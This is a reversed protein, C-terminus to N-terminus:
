FFPSFTLFHACLLSLVNHYPPNAFTLDPSITLTNKCDLVMITGLCHRSVPVVASSQNSSTPSTLDLYLGSLFGFSTSQHKPQVPVTNISHNNSRSPHSFGLAAYAFSVKFLAIFYISPLPSNVGVEKKGEIQAQSFSTAPMDIFCTVLFFLGCLLIKNSLANLYSIRYKPFSKM